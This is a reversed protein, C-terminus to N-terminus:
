GQAGGSLTVKAASKATWGVMGTVIQRPEEHHGKAKFLGANAFAHPKGARESPNREAAIYGETGTVNGQPKWADGTIKRGETRAEGTLPVRKGEGDRPQRPRFGFEVNGTLKDHGVAFSGTVRGAASPAQVASRDARLHAQRQPSAVSFREAVHQVADAITAPAPESCQYPTGTIDRAGGRENGTVRGDPRPTDGTVGTQSVRPELRRASDEAAEPECWGWASTTGQYPTGTVVRCTGPEDGTVGPRHEVDPGTVRQAGWTRAETVKAGTVPDRRPAGIFKAPATGGGNGDGRNGCEAQARAPTLYQDGTVNRCAGDHDGTVRVSRGVASGTIALGGETSELARSGERRRSGISRVSRGLNPGFVSAGHPNAQRQFQAAVYAGSDPRATLDDDIRPDVEGTITLRSGAEDGTIPVRSRVLTGSVVLGGATRMQGVKPAMARAGGADAGIYQTGSVPLSSGPEDGTVQAGRGIRLGTVKQGRQTPSEVVKPAYEIRGQRPSRSPPAAPAGGRGRQSQEARRARAQERCTPGPCDCDAAPAPVPSRAATAPASEHWEAAAVAPAQQLGQKGNVTQRRRLMSMLRGAFSPLTSAPTAVAPAAAAGLASERSAADSAPSVGALAAARRGARVRETAPPLAAKGQSLAQRRALAAARGSQPTVSMAIPM